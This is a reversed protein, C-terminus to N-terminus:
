TTLERYLWNEAFRLERRVTAVSIGLAEATEEVGLGAFYRLEIAQAKRQDLNALRGLAEHLALVDVGADGSSIEVQDLPIRVADSGRKLAAHARAHDVLIMRMLHAAVGYFQRRCQFDQSQDVLRVYAEHVLATPQLTHGPRERRLYSEALDRLTQYVLPTIERLATEDGGSWRRM